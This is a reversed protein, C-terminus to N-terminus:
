FLDLANLVSILKMPYSLNKVKFNSESHCLNQLKGVGTEEGMLNPPLGLILTEVGKEAIGKGSTIAVAAPVLM